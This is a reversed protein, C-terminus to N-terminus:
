YDIRFGVGYTRPRTRIGLVGDVPAATAILPGNGSPTIVGDEDTVNEIFSYVTWNDRGIEARLDGRFFEDGLVPPGGLSTLPRESTYQINASVAGELRGGLSWRYTGGAAATFEPVLYIPTGEVFIPDSTAPDAGPAFFDESIEADTYSGSFFLDLGDFPAFTGSLEVGRSTSEGANIITTVPVGTAPDIVTGTQQVDDSTNWFLALQTQLMNEFFQGKAGIEYSTIEEADVLGDISPAVAQAFFTSVSFDNIGPRFGEAYRAYISLNDSPNYTATFQPSFQETEIGSIVPDPVTPLLLAVNEVDDTFYSAGASVEVLGDWLELSVDGFVSWQKSTGMDVPNFTLGVFSADQFLTQEADRYFVGAIWSLPGDHNSTFRLENVLTNADFQTPVPLLFLTANPNSYDIYGLANRVNFWPTAYEVVAGYQEYDEESSLTQGLGEFGFVSVPLRGSNDALDSALDRDSRKIAASLLISLNDTPAALLKIRGNFTERGNIDEISPDVADDIWGGDNQYSFVGRLALKDEILPLNIATSVSYSEGGDETTAVSTDLKAEFRNLEPDRTNILVVGGSAGAGYLTGQSGRLIEVSELDFPSPDPSINLNIFSFPLDDLYFGVPSAGSASNVGRIQIQIGGREAPGLSIGPTLQLFDTISDASLREIEDGDIVAVGAPAELLSQERKLGTVVITDLTSEQGTDSADQAHSASAGAAGFILSSITALLSRKTTNRVPKGEGFPAQASQEPTIVIMGSETLGGTLGTDQLTIALAENITYQGSVDKLGDVDILEFSYLFEFDTQQYFQDFVQELRGGEIRFEFRNEAGQAFSSTTLVSTLCVVLATLRVQGGSRRQRSM